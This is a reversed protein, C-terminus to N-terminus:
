SNLVQNTMQLPSQDQSFMVLERVIGDINKMQGTADFLNVGISKFADVTAAKGLDQFATKTLNAAIDVTKSTKTFAAFLKNAADVDQGASAAAGGFETQVKALEDFTTVGVQVTKFSSELFKDLDQSELNFIGMAKAAGAIQVNFDSKMIRAFTGVTSVTDEVEKGFLGTASQVDFFATSTKEPDFGEEFSLGLVSNRLRDVQDATKDLNLNATELFVNNFSSAKDIATNFAFGLAVVAGVAIGVPSAIAPGIAGLGPIQNTIQGLNGKIGTFMKNSGASIKKFGTNTTKEVRKFSNDVKNMNGQTKLLGPNIQDKFIYAWTTSEQGM